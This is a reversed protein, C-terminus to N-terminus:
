PMRYIQGGPGRVLVFDEDIDEMARQREKEQREQEERDKREQILMEEASINQITWLNLNGSFETSAIVPLFPHWSVDRAPSAGGSHGWYDRRAPPSPPKRLM